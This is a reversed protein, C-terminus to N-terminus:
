QQEIFRGEHCYCLRKKRQRKPSPSRGCDFKSKPRGPSSSLCFADSTSFVPVDSEEGYAGSCSTFSTNGLFGNILKTVKEPANVDSNHKWMEDETCVLNHAKCTVDCDANVDGVFWGLFNHGSM